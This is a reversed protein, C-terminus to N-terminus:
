VVFGGNVGLTQGTIFSADEGSLFYVARAVDQPTGLRALPTQEILASKDADTYGRMMDTDIVGPAVCNVRLGSPAVEKALAKSMGILAAKSASYAVECSAGVQGWMSSILTIAGSKRGLMYPLAERCCLFAGRVNVAFIRDFEAAGVVTLVGESAIGANVVLADLVGFHQMLSSFLERVAKEDSVDCPYALAGTEDCVKQAKESNERYCFATRWGNQAFHRVMQAGIGRSGGTVLVTRPRM